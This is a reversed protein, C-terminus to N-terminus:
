KFDRSSTALRGLWRSLDVLRHAILNRVEGERQWVGYVGLLRAALLEKRQRERVRKWVIVQIAGGEDELSVFVTGHATEPQQRLTVLGCAWVHNGDPLDRLESSSLFKREALRPRLLALPHRRLTLGTAAYDWVIEEGEPANPLELLEEDVPADRLMEPPAHLAAADWVQQRRHGSLSMLADAAALLKMEHQELGARRALDEASEFPREARAAVIRAASGAKLGAILGKTADSVAYAGRAKTWDFSFPM